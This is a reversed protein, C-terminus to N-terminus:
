LMAEESGAKVLATIIRHRKTKNYIREAQENMLIERFYVDRLNNCSGIGKLRIFRNRPNTTTFYLYKKDIVELPRLNHSTFIFQGKGEEEFIELIEGLLYEYIGADFEDIAVTCSKSAFAASILSLVSIIKRVGDSEDRLPLELGDRYAVLSVINGDEENGITETGLKKLSITLGPVLQNLVASIGSIYFNAEDYESNTLTDTQRAKFFFPRTRTYVPIAFNLRIFGTSKTDIVYFYLRSFYSLELIVQYFVSYIGTSSFIKLTEERFIFSQSNDYAKSKSIELALTDKKGSFFHKRKTAPGFPTNETSTDIIKQSKKYTGDEDTWSMTLQENFVCVKWLSDPLVADDPYNRMRVSIEDESLKVRKMHFSYLVERVEGDLYQLDFWFKLEAYEANIYVCDAYESGVSSGVMLQRLISLAEILATKGSGNQGYVGLIDSETGYPIFSRGCNFVIEGHEVSKFNNLEVKKIRITPLREHKIMDFIFMDDYGM